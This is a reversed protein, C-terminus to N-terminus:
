ALDLLVPKDYLYVEVPDGATSVARVVHGVCWSDVGPLVAGYITAVLRKAGASGCATADGVAAKNMKVVVRDGVAPLAASDYNYLSLKCHLPQMFVVPVRKRSMSQLDSRGKESWVMALTPALTAANNPLMEDGQENGTTLYHNTIHGNSTNTTLSNTAAAGNGAFFLWEGDEPATAFGSCDASLTRIHLVSSIPAVNLGSTSVATANIAM